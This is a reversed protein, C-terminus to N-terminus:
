INVKLAGAIMLPLNSEEARHKNFIIVIRKTIDLIINSLINVGTSYM